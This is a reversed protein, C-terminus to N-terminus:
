GAIWPFNLCPNKFSCAKARYGRIFAV